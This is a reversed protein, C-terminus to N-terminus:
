SFARSRASSIGRYVTTESARWSCAWYVGVGGSQKCICQVNGFAKNHLDSVQLIRYGEFAKPLKENKYAMETMVIGNNQWKCFAWLGIAVCVICVILRLIKELKVKFRM